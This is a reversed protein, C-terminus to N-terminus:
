ALQIMCVSSSTTVPVWGGKYALAQQVCALVAVLVVLVRLM